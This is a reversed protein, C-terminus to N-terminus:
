LAGSNLCLSYVASKHTVIIYYKDPSILFGVQEGSIVQAICARCYVHACHTIVPLRLSDLCVSCEEDSGSALVLRLREILRQRLDAPNDAAASHPPFRILTNEAGKCGGSRMSSFSLKGFEASIKGLLDPHCCYQRLRTLIALVDAYNKLVSGEDVYRCISFM